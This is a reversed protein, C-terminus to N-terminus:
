NSSWATSVSTPITTPPESSSLLWRHGRFRDTALGGSLSHWRGAHCRSGGQIHQTGGHRYFVDVLNDGGFEAASDLVFGFHGPDGAPDGLAAQARPEPDGAAIAALTVAALPIRKGRPHFEFRSDAATKVSCRGQVNSAGVKSVAEAPLQSVFCVAEAARSRCGCMWPRM